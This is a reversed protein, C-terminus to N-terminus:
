TGRLEERHAVRWWYHKERRTYLDRFWFYFPLPLILAVAGFAALEPLDGGTLSQSKRADVGKLILTAAIELLPLNASFIGQVTHVRAIM